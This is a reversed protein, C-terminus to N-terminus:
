RVKLSSSFLRLLISALWSSSRPRHPAHTVNSSVPSPMMGDYCLQTLNHFQHVASTNIESNTQYKTERVFIPLGALQWFIAHTQSMESMVSEVDQEYRNVALKQSRDAVKMEVFLQNGPGWVGFSMRLLVWARRYPSRHRTIHYTISAFPLHTPYHALPTNTLYYRYLSFHDVVYVFNVFHAAGFDVQLVSVAM